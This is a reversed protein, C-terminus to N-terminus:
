LERIAPIDYPDNEMELGELHYLMRLFCGSYDLEVTQGGDILLHDRYKAPVNIWWAGTFRGGEEFTGNNFVRHLRKDSFNIPPRPEGTKEPTRYMIELEAEPMDLLIEHKSLFHNYARGFRIMQAVQPDNCDYPMLPKTKRGEIKRGKLVVVPATPFRVVHGAEIGNASWWDRLSATAEFTSQRKDDPSYIGRQCVLFGRAALANIVAKLTPTRLFDPWYPSEGSYAGNARSYRVRKNAPHHSARLANAIVVSLVASFKERDRQKWNRMRPRAKQCLPFLGEEVLHSQEVTLTLFPDFEQDAEQLHPSHQAFQAYLKLIDTASNESVGLESFFSDSCVCSVGLDHAIPNAIEPSQASM